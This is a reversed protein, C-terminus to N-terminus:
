MVLEVKKLKVRTRKKKLKSKNKISSKSNIVKDLMNEVSRSPECISLELNIEIYLYKQPRCIDCITSEKDKMYM